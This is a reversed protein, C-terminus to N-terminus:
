SVLSKDFDEKKFITMWGSGDRFARYCVGDIDFEWDFNGDKLERGISSIVTLLHVRYVPFGYQKVNIPSM